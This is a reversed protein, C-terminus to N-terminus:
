FQVVEVEGVHIGVRASLPHAFRHSRMAHQFQLAARVADSPTNFAAFFGDGTHKLIEGHFTPCASEFLANHAELLRAFDPAAIRSKLEMGGVIDTFLLVALRSTGSM